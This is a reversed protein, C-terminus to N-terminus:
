TSLIICIITITLTPLSCRFLSHASSRPITLFSILHNIRANTRHTYAEQAHITILLKNNPLTNPIDSFRQMSKMLLVIGARDNERTQWNKSACKDRHAGFVAINIFLKLLKISQLAATRSHTETRDSLFSRKSCLDLIYIPFTM